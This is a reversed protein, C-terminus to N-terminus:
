SRPAGTRLVLKERAGDSLASRVTRALAPPAIVTVRGVREQSLSRNIRGAIFEAFREGRRARIREDECPALRAEIADSHFRAVPTLGKRGPRGALERARGGDRGIIWIIRADTM